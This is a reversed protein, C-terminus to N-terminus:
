GYPWKWGRVEPMDEGHAVVYQTHEIRKDRMHQKLYAAKGALKPVRDAVDM